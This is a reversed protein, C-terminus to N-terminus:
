ENTTEMLQAVGSSIDTAGYSILSRLIRWITNGLILHLQCLVGWLLPAGVLVVVAAAPYRLCLVTSTPTKMLTLYCIGASRVRKVCILKEQEVPCRSTVAM